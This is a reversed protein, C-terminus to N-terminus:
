WPRNRHRGITMTTRTPWTFHHRRKSYKIMNHLMRWQAAVEKSPHYLHLHLHLQAHVASPSLPPSPLLQQYLSNWPITQWGLLVTNTLSTILTNCLFLTSVINMGEENVYQEPNESLSLIKLTTVCTRPAITVHTGFQYFLHQPQSHLKEISGSKFESLVCM